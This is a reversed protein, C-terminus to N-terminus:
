FAATTIKVGLCEQIYCDVQNFKMSTCVANPQHQETGVYHAGMYQKRSEGAHMEGRGACQLLLVVANPQHQETGAYHAGM